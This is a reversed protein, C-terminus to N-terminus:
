EMSMFVKLQEAIEAYQGSDVQLVTEAKWGYVYDFLIVKIFGHGTADSTCCFSLDHEITQATKEGKWGRWHEALDEFLISLSEAYFFDVTKQARMGYSELTVIGSISVHYGHNEITRGSFSVKSSGSKIEFDTEEASLVSSM